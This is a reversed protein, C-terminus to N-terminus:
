GRVETPDMSRLGLRAVWALGIGAMLGLANDIVDASQCGRGLESLVLQWMEIFFPLAFALTIVLATRRSRPLFGITLGLPVFLAINRVTDNVSLLEALPPLTLRELNCWEYPVDTGSLAVATPTLTALLVFGLSVLVSFALFRRVRLATAVAPSAIVAGATWLALGPLFWPVAAFFETFFRTM